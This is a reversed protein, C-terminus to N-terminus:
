SSFLANRQGCPGAVGALEVAAEAIRRHPAPKM